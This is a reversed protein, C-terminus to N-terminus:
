YVFLAVGICVAGTQVILLVDDSQEGVDNKAWCSVNGNDELVLQNVILWTQSNNRDNYEYKAQGTETTMNSTNSSDFDNHRWGISTVAPYGEATCEFKAQSGVLHPSATSEAITIIPEASIWVCYVM